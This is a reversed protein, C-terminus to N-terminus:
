SQTENAFNIQPSRVPPHYSFLHSIRDLEGLYIEGDVGTAMADFRHGVWPRLISAKLIGLDRLENISPDYSFLRSMVDDRGAIGYIMGNRGATLARIYGSWTPKGIARSQVAGSYPDVHLSFFMGDVTSGAYIVGDPAWVAASLANLHERGQNCSISAQLPEFQKDGMRYRFLRGEGMSGYVNGLQDCVLAQSVCPGEIRALHTTTNTGLDYAFLTGGTGIGLILGSKPECVLKQVGEGPVPVGLDEIQVGPDRDFIPTYFTFEQIQNPVESGPDHKFLHGGEATITGGYILGDSGLVLARCTSQIALDPGIVGLDIPYDVTRLSRNNPWLTFLHSRRGSTAGYLHSDSGVVLATIALEGEPIPPDYGEFGLDRMTVTGHSVFAMSRNFMYSRISSFRQRVEAQRAEMQENPIRYPALEAEQDPVINEPLTEPHFAALVTPPQPMAGGLYVVGDLGTTADQVTHLPLMGGIEIGGLDEGEGSEPDARLLHVSPFDGGEVNVAVYVEGHPGFTIAKGQPVRNPANFHEEGMLLGIDRMRGSRGVTPDFEYLRCSLGTLGYIKVGDPGTKVRRVRNLNGKHGHPAPIRVPLKELSVKEPDYRIMYGDDDTTYACGQASWCPGLADFNSIRGLDISEGTRTRFVTFHATPYSVAYIEDREPNLTAFRTGNHPYLRGLNQVSDTSPDYCFVMSGLYGREPDAYIEYIRHVKEGIIPPTTHSVWFIRGDPHAMMATHIKAHTPRLRDLSEPILDELHLIDHYQDTQPTYSAFHAHVAGGFESCVGMYIIGDAGTAISYIVDHEPLDPIVKFRINQNSIPQPNPKLPLKM